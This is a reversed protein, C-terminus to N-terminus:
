RGADRPARAHMRTGRGLGFRTLRIRTVEEACVSCRVARFDCQAEHASLEDADGFTAMCHSCQPM